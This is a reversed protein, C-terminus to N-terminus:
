FSPEQVDNGVMPDTIVLQPGGTTMRAMMNGSHLDLHSGTKKRISNILRIAAVLQASADATIEGESAKNVKDEVADVVQMARRYKKQDIEEGFAKYYLAYLQDVDLKNLPILREMKFSLLAPPHNYYEEPESEVGAEKRLNAWTNIDVHQKSIQSARPLFPNAGSYRQAITIYKLYPNQDLPATRTTMVKVVGIEGPITFAIAEVGSGLIKVKQGNPLTQEGREAGRIFAQSHTDNPVTPINTLEFLKM